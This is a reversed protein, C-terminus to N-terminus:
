NDRVCRVGFGYKKDSRGRSVEAHKFYMHRQWAHTENDETSSWNYSYQQVRFFIGNATERRAGNPLSSFGVENTADTNPDNWLSESKLKGGAVTAGGLYDTLENWEEDSPVHWGTPCLKGTNVAFWNYLGGYTEGYGAKSNNYWCYAPSTLAIWDDGEIVNPIETGDNFKTAKLNESMWLKGSIWVTNYENGEYDKVPSGPGDIVPTTFQIQNGYQTGLSNTAYARVYYTVKPELNSITSEYSGEGEGDKTVNDNLTPNEKTSWCVGRATVTAGGDSYIEGGSIASTSTINTVNTTTLFPLTEEDITTFSKVAGYGIGHSNTAYARVFYTTSAKLETINSTYIGIDSGDETKSDSITPKQNTSSWCVGREIIASGSNNIIEGGSLAETKRIETVESTFLLPPYKEDNDSECSSFMILIVGILAFIISLYKKNIKM